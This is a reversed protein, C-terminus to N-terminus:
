RGGRLEREIARVEGVTKQGFHLDREVRLFGNPGYRLDRVEELSVYGFELDFGSVLGFMLEEEPDYETIYWTWSSGPTFLKLYVVADDGAKEQAYLKPIVAAVEAPMLDFAPNDNSM